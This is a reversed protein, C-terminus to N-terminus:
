DACPWAESFANLTLVGAGMHWRRPHQDMWLLFVQRLQEVSTGPPICFGTTHGLTEHIQELDSIGALYMVCRAYAVVAAGVEYPHPDKCFKLLENGSYFGGASVPAAAILLAAGFLPGITLKRLTPM